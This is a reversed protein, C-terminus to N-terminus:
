RASISTIYASKLGFETRILQRPLEKVRTTGNVSTATLRTPYGDAGRTLRISVIAELGVFRSLDRQSVTQTWSANPNRAEESTSYPDRRGALYAPTAGSFVDGSDRTHGGSSSHYLAEAVSGGYWLSLATAPAGSAGRTVTANVAEKWRQGWNVGHALENEKSWGTFKQSRVEDWVHCGCEAKVSAMNRLAYSRGAVVQAQLAAAPWSSPMEDLGYLYEDNMRLENVVNLQGGVVTVILRGHRVVLDQNTGRARPVTVTTGVGAWHRTGTWELVVTGSRKVTGDPLTAAVQGSDLTFKVGGTTQPLQTSGSARVRVSGSGDLTLANTSLLHVRIDEAARTSSWLRQAPSYYFQLIQAASNGGRAMAAAGYQSLGVGHGFGSGSLAFSAPPDVSTDYGLEGAVKWILKAAEGRSIPRSPRFTKDAYGSSIGESKMWAIYRLYSSGEVDTFPAEAPTPFAPDVMGFLIKAMEGRSISRDPRFTEDTYGSVIEEQVMWTIPAYWSSTEPVDPFPSEAPPTFAPDELRYLFAAAQARSIAEGVGFTGDAKGTTIENQVMWLIPEYFPAGPPVDRFRLGTEAQAPAALATGSTMVVVATLLVALLRHVIGRPSTRGRPSPPPSAAVIPM